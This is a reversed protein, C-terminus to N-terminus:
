MQPIENKPFVLSHTLNVPILRSSGRQSQTPFVFFYDLDSRLVDLARPQFTWSSVDNLVSNKEIRYSFFINSM